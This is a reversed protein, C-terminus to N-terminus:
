TADIQRLELHAVDIAADTMIYYVDFTGDARLDVATPYLQLMARVEIFRTSYHGTDDATASRRLGSVFTWFVGALLLLLYCCLLLFLRQGLASRVCTPSLSVIRM